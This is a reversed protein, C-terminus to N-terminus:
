FPAETAPTHHHTGCVDCTLGRLVSNPDGAIELLALTERVTPNACHDCWGATTDSVIVVRVPAAM